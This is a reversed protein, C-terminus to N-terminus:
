RVEDKHEECVCVLLEIGMWGEAIGVVMAPKECDAVQCKTMDDFGRKLFNTYNLYTM